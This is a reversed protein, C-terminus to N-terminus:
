RVRVKHGAEVKDTTYRNSGCRECAAPLGSSLTGVFQGCDLCHFEPNGLSMWIIFPGGLLGLVALLSVFGPPDDWFKFILIAVSLLVAGAGAMWLRLAPSSPDKTGSWQVM